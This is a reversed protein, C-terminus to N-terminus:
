FLRKIADRMAPPLKILFSKPKAVLPDNMFFAEWPQNSLM